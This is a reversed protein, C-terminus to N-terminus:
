LIKTYYYYSYYSSYFIFFYIFIVGGGPNSGPDITRCVLMSVLQVVASDLFLLYFHYLLLIFFILLPFLHHNPYILSFVLSLLQLFKFLYFSHSPTFYIFQSEVTIVTFSYIIYSPTTSPSANLGDQRILEFLFQLHLIKKLKKAPFVNKNRNKM